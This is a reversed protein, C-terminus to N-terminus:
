TLINFFEKPYKIQLYYRNTKDGIDSIAYKLEDDKNIMTLVLGGDVANVKPQSSSYRQKYGVIVNDLQDGTYEYVVINYLMGLKKIHLNTDEVKEEKFDHLNKLVFYSLKSPIIIFNGCGRRTFVAIRDAVWIINSSITMRLKDNDGKITTNCNNLDEITLSENSPSDMSVEVIKKITEDIVKNVSKILKFDSSLLEKKDVTVGLQPWEEPKKDEYDGVCKLSDWAGENNTKVYDYRLVSAENEVDQICVFPSLAKKIEEIM